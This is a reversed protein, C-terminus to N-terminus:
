LQAAQDLIRRLMTEMNEVKADGPTAHAPAIVYGGNKGMELLRDVQKQRRKLIEKAEELPVLLWELYDEHEEMGGEFLFDLVEEQIRGKHVPVYTLEGARITNPFEDMYQQLPVADKVPHLGFAAAWVNVFVAGTVLLGAATLFTPNLLKKLDVSM